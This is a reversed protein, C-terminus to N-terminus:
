NGITPRMRSSLIDALENRLFSDCQSACANWDPLGASEARRCADELWTEDTWARRLADAWADADAAPLFDAGTWERLVPLDSCLCPIGRWLSEAVPLGSGEGLTPFVTFRTRRFLEELQSDPLPGLWDIRGGSRRSAERVARLEPAGNEANSRGVLVLRCDAPLTQLVTAATRCLWGPRKRPELIGLMLATSSQRRRPFGQTVRPTGHADAGLQLALVPPQRPPRSFRWWGALDKATEASNTFVADFGSLLRLYDPHRRVAHSRCLAPMRLPLADHFLAVAAPRTGRLWEELGPREESSFLEGTFLLDFGAIRGQESVWASRRPDWRIPLVTWGCAGLGSALREGVRRLGSAHSQRGSRTVDWGLVRGPRTIAAM